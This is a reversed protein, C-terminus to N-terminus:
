DNDEPAKPELIFEVQKPHFDLSFVEKPSRQLSVNLNTKNSTIDEYNVVASFDSEDIKDYKSLGVQFSLKVKGPFTKVSFSDPAQIVEIPIEVSTETFQEVPVHLVVRKPNMRLEDISVLSVNRQINRSIDKFTQPKTYVCSLTDIISKPGRVKVSDPVTTPSSQYQYQKGFTIDVVSKVPLKREIIDDFNFRLSDPRISILNIESSIQDEIDSRHDETSISIKQLIQKGNNHTFENVNILIPSFSLQLKHRLLTFGHANVMLDFHDPLDHALKKNEPLNIYKVPYKIRTTYDKSLTNLTWFFTSIVLCILFIITKGDHRLPHDNSLYQKIQEIIRQKM